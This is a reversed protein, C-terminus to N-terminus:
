RSFSRVGTSGATPAAPPFNFVANKGGAAIYNDRFTENTRIM